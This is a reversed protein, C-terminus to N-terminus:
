EPEFFGNLKLINFDISGSMEFIEIQTTKFFKATKAWKPQFKLTNFTKECGSCLLHFLAKMFYCTDVLVPGLDATHNKLYKVLYNEFVM